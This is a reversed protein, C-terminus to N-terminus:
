DDEVMVEEYDNDENIESMEDDENSMNDDVEMPAVENEDTDDVCDDASIELEEGTLDVFNTKGRCAEVLVNDGKGKVILDLVTLWRAHINLLKEQDLNFFAQEITAALVDPQMVKFKHQSEVVAQIAM